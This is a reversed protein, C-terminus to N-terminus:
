FEPLECVGIETKMKSSLWAVAAAIEKHVKLEMKTAIMGFMQSVAFKKFVDKESMALSGYKVRNKSLIPEYEHVIFNLVKSFTGKMKTLDYLCGIVHHTKVFEMDARHCAILLDADVADHYRHWIVKNVEDYYAQAFKNEHVVKM